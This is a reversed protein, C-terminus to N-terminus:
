IIRELVDDSYAELLKGIYKRSVSLNKIEAGKLLSVSYPYTTKINYIKDKSIAYSRHIRIFYGSDWLSFMESLAGRCEVKSDIMHYILTHNIVEVFIIDRQRLNVVENGTQINVSRENKQNEVIRDLYLILRKVDIPKSLFGMAEVLYGDIARVLNVTVFIIPVKNGMKRIYKAANVGDVEEKGFSIDLFLVDIGIDNSLFEILKQPSSFKHYKLEINRIEAWQFVSTLLSEVWFEEDECIAIRM